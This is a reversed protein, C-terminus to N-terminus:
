CFKYKFNAISKANVTEEPLDNWERITCPIFSEKVHSKVTDPIQYSKSNNHRSPRSNPTFISLLGPTDVQTNVIKYEVLFM